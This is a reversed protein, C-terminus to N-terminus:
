IYSELIEILKLYNIPKSLIELGKMTAPMMSGSDGSLFIVPIGKGDLFQAVDFSKASGLNIDLVAVSFAQRTALEMAKAVTGAPGVVEWGNDELQMQIDLAILADDEVVLVRKAKSM